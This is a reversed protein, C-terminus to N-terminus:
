LKNKIVTITKDQNTVLYLTINEIELENNILDDAECSDCGGLLVVNEVGFTQELIHAYNNMLSTIYEFYPHNYSLMEKHDCVFNLFGIINHTSLIGIEAIERIWSEFGYCRVLEDGVNITKIAKYHSTRLLPDTSLVVNVVNEAKEFDYYAEESANYFANELRM